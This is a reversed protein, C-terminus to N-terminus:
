EPEKTPPFLDKFAQSFVVGLEELVTMIVGHAVGLHIIAMGADGDELVTARASRVHGAAMDLQEALREGKTQSM